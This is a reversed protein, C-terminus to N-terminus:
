PKVEPEKSPSHVSSFLFGLGGRITWDLWTWTRVEAAIADADTGAASLVSVVVMAVSAGLARSWRKFSAEDHFFATWFRTFFTIM